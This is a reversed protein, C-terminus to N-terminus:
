LAGEPKMLLGSRSVQWRGLGPVEVVRQVFTPIRREDENVDSLLGQFVKVKLEQDLSM